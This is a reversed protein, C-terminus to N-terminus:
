RPPSSRGLFRGPAPRPRPQRDDLRPLGRPSRRRDPGPGLHRHFDGVVAHVDVRATAAVSDAAAAAGGRQRRLPRVARAPRRAAMADLLLRTKESTGSGLEVLTSTGTSRSSRTPAPAAPDRARCRTPYYEPLRTIQDFLNTGQEDYFWVPPLGPPDDSLGRRTESRLATRGTTPASTSTSSSPPPSQCRTVLSAPEVSPGGHRPPSSTGTRPGPMAPRPPAAAAECCTSTSWSSATTSAWRAPPRASARTPCTPAPRGSGCRATGWRLSPPRPPTSSSAMGARRRARWHEPRRRCPRGSRRPRSAPAPGAPSPTPRTTASTAVPEARDVPHAVPAAHAGGVRVPGRDWYLPRGLGRRQRAAWGDSLWLDARDYGGDAMFALWEGCTVLRDAVAFPELYTRHPPGENDYAFGSATTASRSWAATTASGAEPATVPRPPGLPPPRRATAAYAPRLPNQFLVHKVDM